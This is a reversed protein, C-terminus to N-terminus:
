FRQWPILPTDYGLTLPHKPHGDKATGWCYLPCGVKDAIAKVERWRYRLNPPLKGLTGWAVIHLDADRLIQEIHKDNDPGIPDVARQLDTVDKSRYAFKNGIIFKAAGITESFGIWKRITHDNATADATSPNVMIGAVTRTSTIGTTRELRYRFLGCPSIIASM